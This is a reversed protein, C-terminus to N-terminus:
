AGENLVDSVLAIYYKWDAEIKNVFSHIQDKVPMGKDCERHFNANALIAEDNKDGVKHAQDITLIVRDGDHSYVFKLGVTDLPTEDSDWKGEKFFHKKIYSGPSPLKVAGNFNIGVAIYPVHPLVDIYRNVIDALHSQAPTECGQDVVQLKNTEVTITVGSDYSLTAFPPTTIADGSRKWGWKADIIGERELFDPNILSPNHENAVVVISLQVLEIDMIM